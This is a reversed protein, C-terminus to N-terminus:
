VSVVTAEHLRHRRSFCRVPGVADVVYVIVVFGASIHVFAILMSCISVTSDVVNGVVVSIPSIYVFARFGSCISAM